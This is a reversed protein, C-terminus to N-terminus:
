RRRWDQVIEALRVLYVLVTCLAALAFGALIVAALPQQTAFDWVSVERM